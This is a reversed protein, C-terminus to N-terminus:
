FPSFSPFEGLSPRHFLRRDALELSGAMQCAVNQPAKKEDLWGDHRPLSLEYLVSSDEKEVPEFGLASTFEVPKLILCEDLNRCDELLEGASSSSAVCLTSLFCIWMTGCVTSGVARM